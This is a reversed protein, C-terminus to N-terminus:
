AATLAPCTACSASRNAELRARRAATARSTLDGMVAEGTGFYMEDPTQGRFASHPLVHNHEHVYFTVLRRITAVSDLSHLYLWQHKLSRWWAEIMSDSCRLETFALLRRLVGAEILADVAANVTEVGADAVVVPTTTSRITRSADLLVAVSNVPACTDVVRWARVGRSCNDIVAHLYARTGDLLRIVTTDIHWMEDPATTRLGVTRKAPHVRLRPRRWGHQRVLRYWTSPSASVKGLRQALVALTGTPVHRYGPSTVMDGIAQIEVPTLRHPSTRPCSSQDGLTCATQRQRWAHFRSPTLGLFRLVGRLPLCGRARDVARVIRRKAPGDPLREGFLRFGSAHLLALALRILAALKEVRQQLTLIEQRLEPETLDALDLTVVVRPAARLWGRATSRPVGLDTAITLDGTRRVLDRLRHDYRQQPRSTSPM